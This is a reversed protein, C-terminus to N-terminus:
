GAQACIMIVFESGSVTFSVLNKTMQFLCITARQTNQLAIFAKALSFGPKQNEIDPLSIVFSSKGHVLGLQSM